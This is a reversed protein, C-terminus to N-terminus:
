GHPMPVYTDGIGSMPVIGGRGEEAVSMQHDDSSIQEFTNVRPGVM